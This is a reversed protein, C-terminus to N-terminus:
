LPCQGNQFLVNLLIDTSIFYYFINIKRYCGVEFLLKPYQLYTAFHLKEFNDNKGIKQLYNIVVPEYAHFDGHATGNLESADRLTEGCM